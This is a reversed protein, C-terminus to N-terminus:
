GGARRKTHRTPTATLPDEPWPHKPYRGRMEARVAAYSGTWFGELDDTIQLPRGAPSLLHLRAPQGAISPTTSLGFLEQLKVAVVPRDASYDIRIRSGTPVTLHTPAVDDLRRHLAYPVRAMLAAALDVRSLDARRRVGGLFPGLWSELDVLLTQDDVAPWGDAGAHRHLHDLRQRLGTTTATWPLPRLEEDHIGELLAALVADAPPDALPTSSLVLAGHRRQREAVVDGGQWTVVDVDRALSQVADPDLAAALHIRADSGGRDLHAVAIMAEGALPDGEPMTAGRGGAMVFAGRRGRSIAVRDPYALAVLRGIDESWDGSGRGRGGGVGSGRGGGVGSGRTAGVGTRRRIRDATRRVRDLAGRRSPATGGGGGHLARVRTELDTGAGVLIDREGLLAAVDAALSGLHAPAALVMSALRPHVPLAAMARGHDTIRGDPSVAGLEALLDQAAAWTALPPRDLLPLDELPTGWVAVELAMPALDEEAVAPPTFAALAEHEAWLRVCLGPGERAARGRRQDASARSARVTRLASMGTVPDFRPRRAWGSDVVIRVGPVTLSSEAIDTALVVRRGSAAPQLAQRQRDAPLAGYLPLVAAGCGQLAAQADSIERQGPLFALVDGRATDLAWRVGAAVVEGTRAGATAPRHVTEVPHVRGESRIVPADGLLRAVPQTALTASMVLLRLDPRVAAQVELAFALALDAEVAREHFEDLVIVAVGEATPDHQLRRVLVGETVVEVRTDASVKRDEGTTYGVTRGVPQGMLDAMRTAAARAAIRRPELVVVRGTPLWDARLLALPVLTTKGAGPPAELVARGCDGLAATLEGLVAQVPLDPM